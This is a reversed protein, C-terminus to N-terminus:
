SHKWNIKICTLYSIILKQNKYHINSVDFPIYSMTKERHLHNVFIMM